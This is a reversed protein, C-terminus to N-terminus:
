EYENALVHETSAKLMEVLEEAMYQYDDPIDLVMISPLELNQYQSTIIKKHKNEMVLVIDAWILDQESIKKKASTSTGASRVNVRPDHRYLAEGTPSRWRNQSCVFLLNVPM